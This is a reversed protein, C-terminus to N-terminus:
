EQGRRAEGRTCADPTETHFLCLLLVQAPRMWTRAGGRSAAQNNLGVGGVWRMRLYLIAVNVITHM